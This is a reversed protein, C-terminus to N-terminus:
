ATCRCRPWSRRRPDSGSRPRRGSGAPGPRWGSGGSRRVSRGIGTSRRACAPRSISRRAFGSSGSPVRRTWNGDPNATRNRAIGRTEDGTAPKARWWLRLIEFRSKSARKRLCSGRAFQAPREGDSRTHCQRDADDCRCLRPVRSDEHDPGTPANRPGPNDGRKDAEGDRPLAPGGRGRRAAARLARRPSPFRNCLPVTRPRRPRRRTGSVRPLVM